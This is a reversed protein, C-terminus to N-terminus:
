MFLEEIAESVRNMNIWEDAGAFFRVEGEPTVYLTVGSTATYTNNPFTSLKEAIQTETYNM